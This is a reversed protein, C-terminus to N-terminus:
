ETIRKEARWQQTKVGSEVMFQYLKILDDRSKDEPSFLGVFRDTEKNYYTAAAVDVQIGIKGDYGRNAIAQVMLDWLERDHNVVGPQVFARGRGRDASVNLKKKLLDFLEIQVDWGAHSAEAFSDFGYCM